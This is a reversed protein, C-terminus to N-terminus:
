KNKSSVNSPMNHDELTISPSTQTILTLDNVQFRVISLGKAM